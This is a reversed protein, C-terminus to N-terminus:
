SCFCKEGNHTRSLGAELSALNAFVDNEAPPVAGSDAEDLEDFSMLNDIVPLEERSAQRAKFGSSSPPLPISIM